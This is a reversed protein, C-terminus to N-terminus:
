SRRGKARQEAYWADYEEDTLGDPAPEIASAPTLHAAAPAPTERRIWTNLAANWDKM